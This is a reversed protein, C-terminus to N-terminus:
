KVLKQVHGARCTPSWWTKKFQTSEKKSRHDM